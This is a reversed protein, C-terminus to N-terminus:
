AGPRRCRPCSTSADVRSDLSTDGAREVLAFVLTFWFVLQIAVNYAVSVGSGLLPALDTQGAVAQAAM